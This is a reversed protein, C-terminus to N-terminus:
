AGRLPVVNDAGEGKPKGNMAAAITAGISEAARHMPDADLHAYRATTAAQTHGLLKGVIHLGLSKGAGFSAFSHRLDHVRVGDLGATKRVARWPKNLDARPKGEKAGPFVFPNGEVRKVSALVAEAAASLYITKKGTKSTPLRIMHREDDIYEWRCHLIERLRAGTLVLLRIAAIAHEDIKQRRNEVKPAHKAKTNTEDISWPVGVTEAERLADGLRSLEDTTLYRERGEAKYPKVEATPNNQKAVGLKEEAAWNWISSILALVKNATYKKAALSRHLRKVDTDIVDALRRLGIQPLIHEDLTIRYAKYTTEKKEGADIQRKFAAMFDGSAKEFTPVEREKRRTDIPDEGKAVAALDRRAKERAEDPTLTGHEGIAYRRTRGHHRYQIFYTKKGGRFAAVGFGNLEEDWLFIRDRNEPCKLADVSRKTIRKSPLVRNTAMAGEV